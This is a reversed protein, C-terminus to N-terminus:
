RCIRRYGVFKNSQTEPDWKYAPMEYCDRPAEARRAADGSNTTALTAAIGSVLAIGFTVVALFIKYFM